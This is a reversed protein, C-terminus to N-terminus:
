VSATEKTISDALPPLSKAGPAPPARAANAEPQAAETEVSAQQQAQAAELQAEFAALQKLMAEPDEKATMRALLAQGGLCGACCILVSVVAPMIIATLMLDMAPKSCGADEAQSYWVCGTVWWAVNFLLLAYHLAAVFKLAKGLSLAALTLVTSIVGAFLMAGMYVWLWVAVHDTCVGATPKETLLVAVVAISMPLIILWPIAAQLHCLQISYDFKNPGAARPLLERLM